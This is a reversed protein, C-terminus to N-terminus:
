GATGAPFLSATSVMGLFKGEASQIHCQGMTNPPPCGPLKVVQVVDGSDASSCPHLLDLPCPDFRYRSGARVRQM